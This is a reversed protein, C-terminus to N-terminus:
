LMKKGWPYKLKLPDTKLSIMLVEEFRPLKIVFYKYSIGNYIRLFFISTRKILVVRITGLVYTTKELISDVTYQRITFYYRSNELYM